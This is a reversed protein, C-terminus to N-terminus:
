FDRYFKYRYDQLDAAIRLERTWNRAVADQKKSILSQYLVEHMAFYDEEVFGIKDIMNAIYYGKKGEILESIDGIELRFVETMFDKDASLGDPLGDSVSISDDTVHLEISFEDVVAQFDEATEIKSRIDAARDWSRSKKIIKKLKSSISKRVDEFPKTGELVESVKKFVVYGEPYPYVGSVTGIPNNFCFTAAMRMRGLGAIYGAHSFEKTTDIDFEMEGAVLDFDRETIEQAFNYAETYIDDRTEPSPEIKLLIHSAKIEDEGDDNKRKGEVKIIHLGFKSEVPDLIQDPEAAFAAEEFPKVMKGRAFWGLDGGDAASGEDDSRAKALAALDEGRRVDRLLEGAELRIDATDQASPQVKFRVYAFQAQPYQKFSGPFMRYYKQMMEETIDSSDVEFDDYPVFLFQLKAKLANKIYEDKVEEETVGAAQTVQFLLKQEALYAEVSGEMQILYQAADPTRLFNKYAQADFQGDRQFAEAKQVEPPPFNEIIHAIEQPSVSIDLRKSDKQKLLNEVYEDWADERARKVKDPELETGAKRTELDIKRQIVQQFRQIEIEEGDIEGVVGVNETDKFGGMGWSFVITGLFAVVLIWMILKMQSRLETLM